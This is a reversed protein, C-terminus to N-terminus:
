PEIPETTLEEHPQGVIFGSPPEAPDVTLNQLCFSKYACNNCTMASINRPWAEARPHVGPLKRHAQILRIVTKQQQLYMALDDELIPVERRTFYFDPRQTTDDALRDQFEELTEKQKQSICPKRTVDYIIAEVNWELKRAAIVYHLLQMNFKLRLWYDSDESISEGSTKHEILANRGDRLTGLGDMKGAMRWGYINMGVEFQVEPYLMAIHQDQQGYRLYYGHLLGAVIGANLPDLTAQKIDLAAALAAEYDLGRWRADMARHWASGLNLATTKTTSKLGIEYAWFYQRQCVLYKVHASATFLNM